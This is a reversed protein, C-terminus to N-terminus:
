GDEFGQKMGSGLEESKKYVLRVRKGWCGLYAITVMLRRNKAGGAVHRLACCGAFGSTQKKRKLWASVAVCMNGFTEM